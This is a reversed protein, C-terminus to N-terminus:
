QLAVLELWWIDAYWRYLAFSMIYLSQFTHVYEARGPKM